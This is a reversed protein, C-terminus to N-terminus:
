QDDDAPPDARAAEAGVDAMDGVGDEVVRGGGDGDDRVASGDRFGFGRLESSRFGHAWRDYSGLYRAAGLGPDDEAAM